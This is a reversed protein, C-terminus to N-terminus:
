ESAEPAKSVESQTFRHFKGLSAVLQQGDPKKAFERYLRLLLEEDPALAAAAVPSQQAAAPAPQLPNVASQGMVLQQLYNPDQQLKQWLMPDQLATQVAPNSMARFLLSIDM